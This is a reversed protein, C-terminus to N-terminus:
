VNSLYNINHKEMFDVVENNLIRKNTYKPTFSYIDKLFLKKSENLQVIDNADLLKSYQLWKYFPQNGKNKKLYKYFYGMCSYITYKSKYYDTGALLCVDRFENQNMKLEKLIDMMNYLVMTGKELNFNRLVRQCGYVFMDMDETMCAWAIRRRVLYVCLDDAEGDAVIYNVGLVDILSKVDRINANTIRLCKKRENRLQRTIEEKKEPNDKNENLQNELNKCIECAHKKSADRESLLDLKEDPPTGDFVFIPVIRYKRLMMIMKYMSELLSDNGKYQYLFISIDIAITKGSLESLTINKMAGSAFERLYRNLMRVGM